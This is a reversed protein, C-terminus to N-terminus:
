KIVVKYKWYNAENENQYLKDLTVNIRILYFENKQKFFVFNWTIKFDYRM